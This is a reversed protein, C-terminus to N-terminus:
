FRCQVTLDPTLVLHVRKGFEGGSVTGCEGKVVKGGALTLQYQYHGPDQQLSYFIGNKEGAKIDGFDLRSSPLTVIASAIDESAQNQIDISPSVYLVLYYAAVVAVAISGGMWGIRKM